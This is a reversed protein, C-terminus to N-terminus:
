KVKFTQIFTNFEALYVDYDRDARAMYSITYVHANNFFTIQTTKTSFGLTTDLYTFKTASTGAVQASTAESLVFGTSEERISEIDANALSEISAKNNALEGVDISVRAKGDRNVFRMTYGYDDLQLPEWDAPMNLSYSDTEVARTLGLQAGRSAFLVIVLGILLILGVVIFIPKLKNTM